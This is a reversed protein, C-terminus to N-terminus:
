NDLVAVCDSAKVGAQVGKLSRDQPDLKTVEVGPIFCPPLSRRRIALQQSGAAHHERFRAFVDLVHIMQKHDAAVVAIFQEGVEVLPVDSRPNMIRNRDMALNREATPTDNRTRQSM